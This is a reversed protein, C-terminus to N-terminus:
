VHTDKLVTMSISNTNLLMLSWESTGCHVDQLLPWVRDSTRSGWDFRCVLRWDRTGVGAGLMVVEVKDHRRVLVRM